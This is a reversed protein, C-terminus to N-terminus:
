LCYWIIDVWGYIPTLSFYSSSRINGSAAVARFGCCIGMNRCIEALTQPRRHDACVDSCFPEINFGIIWWNVCRHTGPQVYVSLRNKFKMWILRYSIERMCFMKYWILLATAIHFLSPHGWRLFRVQQCITAVGYVPNAYNHHWALKTKNYNYMNVLATLSQRIRGKGADTFAKNTLQALALFM